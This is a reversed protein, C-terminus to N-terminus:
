ILFASHLTVLDRPKPPPLPSWLVGVLAQESVTLVAPLVVPPAASVQPVSHSRDMREGGECCHRALADDHAKDCCSMEEGCGSDDMGMSHMSGMGACCALDVSMGLPVLLFATVM